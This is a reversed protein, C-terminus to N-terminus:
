GSEATEESDFTALLQYEDMGCRKRGRPDEREKIRFIDEFIAHQLVFFPAFFLYCFFHLVKLFIM